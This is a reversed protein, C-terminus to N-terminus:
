PTEKSTIGMEREHNVAQKIWRDGLPIIAAQQQKRRAVAAAVPDDLSARRAAEAKWARLAERDAESM